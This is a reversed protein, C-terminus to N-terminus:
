ELPLLELKTGDEFAVSQMEVVLTLSASTADYIYSDNASLPNIGMPWSKESVGGALLFDSDSIEVNKLEEGEENQFRVLAHFATINQESTNEFAARLMLGKGVGWKSVGASKEISLVSISEDLQSQIEANREVIKELRLGELRTLVDALNPLATVEWVDKKELQVLLEGESELDPRVFPLVATAFRGQENVSSVPKFQIQGDGSLEQWLSAMMPQGGYLKQTASEEGFSGTSAYNLMQQQLNKSLEPQVFSAIRKGLKSTLQEGVAELLSQEEVESEGTDTLMGSLISLAVKHTDVYRDFMEQDRSLLSKEIQILAYSASDMKQKQQYQYFGAGAAGAVVLVGAVAIKLSTKM